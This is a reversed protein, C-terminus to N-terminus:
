PLNSIDSGLVPETVSLQDSSGQVQITATIGTFPGLRAVSPDPTNPVIYTIDYELAWCIGNVHRKDDYTLQGRSYVCKEVQDGLFEDDQFIEVITDAIVDLQVGADVGSAQIEIQIKLERKSTWNDLRDATEETGFLVIAPLEEDQLPAFRDVYVRSGALTQYAGDVTALLRDRMYAKIGSRNPQIRM